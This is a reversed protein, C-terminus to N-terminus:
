RSRRGSNSCAGSSSFTVAGGQATATVSFSSGFIASSPAHTSVSITQDAKQASVAEVVQPAANYNASGAQDYRCSCTGTGSTMTFTSGM